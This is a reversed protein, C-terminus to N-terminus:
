TSTLKLMKISKLLVEKVNQRKLSNNLLNLTYSDRYCATSVWLIQSILSELNEVFDDLLNRHLQWSVRPGGKVGWFCKRTSLKQKLSLLDNSPNPVNFFNLSWM